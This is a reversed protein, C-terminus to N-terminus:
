ITYGRFNDWLPQNGGFFLSMGYMYGVHKPNLSQEASSFWWDLREDSIERELSKRKKKPGKGLRNGCVLPIGSVRRM